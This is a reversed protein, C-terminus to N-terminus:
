PHAPVRGPRSSARDTWRPPCLGVAGTAPASGARPPLAALGPHAGFEVPAGPPQANRGPVPHPPHAACRPAPLRRERRCRRALTDGASWRRAALDALRASLGTSRDPFVSTFGLAELKPGPRLAARMRTFTPVDFHAAMQSCVVADVGDMGDLLAMLATAAGVCHAVVSVGDVKAIERVRDVAAPWDITAIEDLDSPRGVGPLRISSRYDFLWVDYGAEVLVETLNPAAADLLYHDSSMGFGPALVVPGASGGRFRRLGVIPDDPASRSWRGDRDLWHREAGPLALERQRAVGRQAARLEAGGMAAKGFSRTMPMAFAGLFSAIARAQAAPAAGEPGRLSLGMRVADFPALRALGYARKVSDDCAPGGDAALSRISVSVETADWLWDIGPQDLILKDADLRYRAGAADRLGLRYEMRHGVPQDPDPVVM